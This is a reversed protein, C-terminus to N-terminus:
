RKGGSSSAGSCLSLLSYPVNCSVATAIGAVGSAPDSSSSEPLDAPAPAAAALMSALIDAVGSAPDSLSPEPLDPLDALMSALIATGSSPDSSSEPFDAPAPAPIAAEVGAVGSAPAPASSSSFADPLQGDLDAVGSATVPATCAFFCTWEFTTDPAEDDEASQAVGYSFAPPGLMLRARELRYAYCTMDGDDPVLDLQDDDPPEPPGVCCIQFCPPCRFNVCQECILTCDDCIFRRCPMCWQRWTRLGCIQCPIRSLDRIAALCYYPAKPLVEDDPMIGFPYKPNGVVATCAAATCCEVLALPRVIDKDRIPLPCGPRAPKQYTIQCAQAVTRRVWARAAGTFMGCGHVHGHSAGEAKSATRAPQQPPAWASECITAATWKKAGGSGKHPKPVHRVYGGAFGRRSPAGSPCRKMILIEHDRTRAMGARNYHLAQAQQHMDAAGAAKLLFDKLFKKRKTM